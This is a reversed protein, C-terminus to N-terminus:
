IVIFDSNTHVRKTGYKGAHEICSKLDLQKHLQRGYTMWVNWGNLPLPELPEGNWGLITEM